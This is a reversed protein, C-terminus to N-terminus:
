STKFVNELQKLLVKMGDQSIEWIWDLIKWFEYIHQDYKQFQLILRLLLRSFPKFVLRQGKTKLLNTLYSKLYLTSDEDLGLYFLKGNSIILARLFIYICSTSMLISTLPPLLSTRWLFSIQQENVFMNKLTTIFQDM